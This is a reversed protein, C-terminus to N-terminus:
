VRGTKTALAVLKKFQQHAGEASQIGVVSIKLSKGLAKGLQRKSFEYFIPVNETVCLDVIEQLKEDIVGYEDLNNAMIVMKVKHARIGRACERLGMVVRRRAKANKDDAARRQLRMLEGLMENLLPKAVEEDILSAYARPAQVPIKPVQLSPVFREPIEKDGSFMRTPPSVPAAGLAAPDDLQVDVKLGGIVTGSLSDYTKKVDDMSGKIKVVVAGPGHSEDLRIDSVQCTEEILEKLDNMSEELCEEDEIDDETLINRLILAPLNENVPKAAIKSGGLVTKSLEAAATSAVNGHYVLVVNRGEVQVDKLRGYKEALERIDNLSEDLCEEDELDDETLADQLLVKTQALRQAAELCVAKWEEHSMDDHVLGELAQVRLVSGGITMGDWCAGAADRVFEVLVPEDPSRPVYLKRVPGLRQAMDTLNDVVEEYEDDDDDPLPETVYGYVCLVVSPTAEPHLAKWQALREQLVRKKLASFKKKRPQLRQRTGPTTVSVNLFTHADSPATNTTPFHVPQPLFARSSRPRPPPPEPKRKSQQFANKPILDGLQRPGMNPKKKKRPTAQPPSSAPPPPMGYASSSPYWEPASFKLDSKPKKQTVGKAASAYSAM